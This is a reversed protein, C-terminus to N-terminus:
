NVLSYYFSAYERFYSNAVPLFLKETPSFDDTLVEAGSLDFNNKAILSALWEGDEEERLQRALGQADISRDSNVGVIIINQPWKEIAGLSIVLYNPFIASFTKLVSKFLNSNRGDVASVMNLAYIGGDTLRSKALKNFEETLLHNPVSALSSFADGFIFDYKRDSRLLDTRADGIVFDINKDGASFYEKAVANVAPDIEVSRINLNPRFSLMNKNITQAGGGISYIDKINPNIAFFIPFAEPYSRMKIGSENEMSHSGADLFLIKVDGYPFIKKKIVEISYYNSEKKYVSAPSKISMDVPLFSLLLLVAFLLERKKSFIFSIFIFIGATLLIIKQSGLIGVLFFGTLVTGAISGLAWFSSLLGSQFGVGNIETTKLKLLCPSIAGILISPIFFLVLASAMSIFPMPINLVALKPLIRVFINILFIFLASGLSFRFIVKPSPSKDILFGGWIYGIASGLLVTGIISSWTYLSSGIYPAVIRTAVLELTMLGFGALFSSFLYKYDGRFNNLLSKIMNM